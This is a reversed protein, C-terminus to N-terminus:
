IYERDVEINKGEVINSNKDKAIMTVEIMKEIKTKQLLIM